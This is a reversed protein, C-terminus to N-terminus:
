HKKRENSKEDLTNNLVLNLVVDTMVDGKIETEGKMAQSIVRSAYGYSLMTYFSKSNMIGKATGLYEADTVKNIDASDLGINILSAFLMECLEEQLSHASLGKSLYGGEQLTYFQKRFVIYSSQIDTGFRHMVRGMDVVGSCFRQYKKIETGEPYYYMCSPNYQYRIDGIEVVVEGSKSQSYHITGDSYAYCETQLVNDKEYYRIGRGGTAQTLKILSNLKVIPSTTNYAACVIDGAKFTKQPTMVLNHPNPYKLEKGGSVCELYLFEGDERVGKIAKPAYLIGERSM